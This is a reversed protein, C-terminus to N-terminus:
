PNLLELSFVNMKFKQVRSGKFAMALHSPGPDVAGRDSLTLTILALM